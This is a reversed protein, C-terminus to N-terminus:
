ELGDMIMENDEFEESFWSGNDYKINGIHKMIWQKMSFQAITPMNANLTCNKCGYTMAPLVRQNSIKKHVCLPM